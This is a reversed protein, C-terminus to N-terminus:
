FALRGTRKTYSTAEKQVVRFMGHPDGEIQFTVNVNQETLVNRLAQEITSLPSVVETERNNDGLVALFQSMNPPIVTGQALKPVEVHSIKSLGFSFTQASTAGTLWEPMDIKLTNLNTIMSNTCDIIKDTFSAFVNIISQLPTKINTAINTFTDVFGSNIKTNTKDLTTRLTNFKKTISLVLKDIKDSSKEKILVWNGLMASKTLKMQAKIGSTIGNSIKTWYEADFWPKVKTDYWTTMATTFDYETIGKVIGDVIDKGLPIMSQAPSHSNFATRQRMAKETDETVKDMAKQFTASNVQKSMGDAIGNAIDAGLPTGVDYFVTAASSNLDGVVKSAVVDKYMPGMAVQNFTPSLAANIQTRANLVEKTVAESITDSLGKFRTEWKEKELWLNAIMSIIKEYDESQTFKTIVTEFATGLAHSLKLLSETLDEWKINSIFEVLKDAFTKWDMSSLASTIMNLLGIALNSVTEAMDKADLKAFVESIGAAIAQGWKQWEADEALIKIGRFLAKITNSLVEGVRKMKEPTLVANFFTVFRIAILDVLKFIQWWRIGKIFSEITTTLKDVVKGVDINSIWGELAEVLTMLSQSLMEGFQKFDFNDMWSNMIDALTKGVRYGNLTSIFGTIANVIGNTVNAILEGASNADLNSLFNNVITALTQGLKFGDIEKGLENFFNVFANFIGALAEGLEVDLGEVGQFEMIFGGIATGAKGADIVVQDWDIDNLTDKLSQGMEAGKGKVNDILEDITMLELSIAEYDSTNEKDKNNSQSSKSIVNLKDFQALQEKTKSNTKDLEKNYDRQKRIVKTYSDAGLLKAFLMGVANIADASLDIFQTLMPEVMTLANAFVAGFSNELFSLSSILNSVATNIDNIGKELKVMEKVTSEISSSLSIITSILKTVSRVLITAVGVAVTRVAKDFTKFMPVLMRVGSAIVNFAKEAGEPLSEIFETIKEQTEKFAKHIIVALATAVATAAILGSIVPHSTILTILKGYSQKVNNIAGVLEDKNMSALRAVGRTISTIGYIASTNLGPILRAIGRTTSQIGMLSERVRNYSANHREAIEQAKEKQAILRDIEKIEAEYARIQDQVSMDVANAEEQSGTVTQTRLEIEKQLALERRQLLEEYRQKALEDLKAKTAEEEEKAKIIDQAAKAEKEAREDTRTILISTKDLQKDLNETVKQYEPTDAGAIYARGDAKLEDVKNKFETIRESAEAIGKTQLADDLPVGSAFQTKMQAIEATLRNVLAELDQYQKLQDATVDDGTGTAELMTGYLYEKQGEAQALAKQRRNIASQVLRDYKEEWRELSDTAHKFEDTMYTSTGIDILRQIMKDIGTNAEKLQKELNVLVPSEQDARTDFIRNIEKKLNNARAELRNFDKEVYKVLKDASKEAQENNLDVTLEVIKDEEGM